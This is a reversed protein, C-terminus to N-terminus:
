GGFWVAAALLLPAPLRYRGAGNTPPMDDAAERAAADKAVVVAAEESLPSPRGQPVPWPSDKKM